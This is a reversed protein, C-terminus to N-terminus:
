IDHAKDIKIGSADLRKRLNKILNVAQPNDGHICFTDAKIAVNNGQITKVNQTTIMNYVHTFLNDENYIMANNEQRSVLTLDLNYNRDAFAEYMIPIQHQLALSAIVSNYPAYLKVPKSVRKIVAIIVEATKHDVAALNYLAGHPKIHHLDADAEKLILELNNIQHELSRFLDNSTMTLKVRGFNASDPFSPHAGIKVDHQKALQVVNRMTEIDGAHGGCAVNCSSIYPMLLAENDIGEGVDVNIDVRFTQM